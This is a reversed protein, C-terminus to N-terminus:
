FGCAACSAADYPATCIMAASCLGCGIITNPDSCNLAGSGGGGCDAPCSTADEGTECTGNGCVPSSGGCDQSCSTATEGTECVGNGCVANQNSGGNGGNGCDQPCSHVESAACIMDGCVVPAADPM